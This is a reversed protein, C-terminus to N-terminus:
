GGRDGLHLALDFGPTGGIRGGLNVPTGGIRGGLNVCHFNSTWM